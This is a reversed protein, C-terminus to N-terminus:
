FIKSIPHTDIKPRVGLRRANYAILADTMACAPFVVESGEIPGYFVFSAGRLQTFTCSGALCSNYAYPGMEKRIKRWTTIANAPACGAPLGFENRVRNIAESAPGISPVDLVATDVLVTQIGAEKASELLGMQGKRQKLIEVRGEAWLNAPNHAMVISSKVGIERLASIEESNATYDISNYVARNLLGAEALHRM